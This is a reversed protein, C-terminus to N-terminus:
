QTEAIGEGETSETAEQVVETPVAAEALAAPEQPSIEAQPGAEGPAQEPEM